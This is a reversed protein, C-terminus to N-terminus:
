RDRKGGALGWRLGGVPLGQTAKGTLYVASSQNSHMHRVSIHPLCKSVKRLALQVTYSRPQDLQTENVVLSYIKGEEAFLFIGGQCTIAPFFIKSCGYLGFPSDQRPGAQALGLPEPSLGAPQNRERGFPDIRKHPFGPLARCFCCARDGGAGGAGGGHSFAPFPGWRLAGTGPRKAREGTLLLLSRETEQGVLVIQRFKMSFHFTMKFVRQGSSQLYVEVCDCLRSSPAPGSGESRGLAPSPPQERTALVYLYKRYVTDNRPDTAFQM